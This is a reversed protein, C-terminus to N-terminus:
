SFMPPDSEDPVYDNVDNLLDRLVAMLQTPRPTPPISVDDEDGEPALETPKQSLPLAPVVCSEKAASPAFRSGRDGEPTVTELNTANSGNTGDSRM